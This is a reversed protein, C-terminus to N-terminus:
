TESRGLADTARTLDGNTYAFQATNGLPDTASTLEGMSDYAFKTQENAPDTLSVLNGKNDYKFTMTLGLPDTISTVKNFTPDYAFTTTVSPSAGGVLTSGPPLALQTISTTNGSADYTYATIRGLPDTVSQTQNTGSQ